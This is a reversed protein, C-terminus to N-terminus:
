SIGVSLVITKMAASQRMSTVLEIMATRFAEHSGSSLRDHMMASNVKDHKLGTGSISKVLSNMILVYCILLLVLV